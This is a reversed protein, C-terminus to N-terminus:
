LYHAFFYYIIYIKKSLSLILCCCLLSLIVFPYSDQAWISITITISRFLNFILFSCDVHYLSLLNLTNLAFHAWYSSLHAISAYLDSPIAYIHTWLLSILEGLFNLRPFNWLNFKLAGLALLNLLHSVVPMCWFSLWRLKTQGQPWIISTNQLIM